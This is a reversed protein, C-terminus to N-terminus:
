NSVETIKKLSKNKERNHSSEISSKQPENELDKFNNCNQLIGHRLSHAKPTIIESIDIQTTNPVRVLLANIQLVRFTNNPFCM